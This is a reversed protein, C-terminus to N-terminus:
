GMWEFKLLLTRQLSFLNDDSALWVITRGGEQGIAIAEMNDRTLPGEFAALTRVEIRRQSGEPMEALLLHGTWGSWAGFRRSLMLLRGDPLAAADTIRENGPPDIGLVVAQTAADAPDGLFLVAESIGDAGHDERVALFRGGPLRALAEAGRNAGWREMASPAARAVAAFSRSDYRWIENSNEYGIWLSGGLLSMSESDRGIESDNEGPVGRLPLIEVLAGPPPAFRLLVGRDSLALLRDGDVALASIAGFRRDDSTLHWGDLFRLPGWDREYPAQANLPVVEAFLGATAAEGVGPAPPAPLVTVLLLAGAALALARVARRM